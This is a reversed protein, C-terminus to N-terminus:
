RLVSSLLERTVELPLGVVNDFPGDISRVFRDGVEDQIAYSGAKDFSAGTAVYADIEADTWVAMEVHTTVVEVQLTTAAGLVSRDDDAGARRSAVAVGTHVQHRSGSLLRLMRKADDADVPKGLVEGGVAVVTDAGVVVVDPAEAAALGAQAKAVALRRVLDEASEGPHPTEDVDAPRVEFPVDLEGLLVRRRPSGSALILPTM